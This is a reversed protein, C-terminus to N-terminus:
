LLLLNLILYLPHQNVTLPHQLDKLENPELKVQTFPFHYQPQEYVLYKEKGSSGSPEGVM